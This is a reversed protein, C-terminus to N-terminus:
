RYKQPFYMQVVRQLGLAIVFVTAPQVLILSLVQTRVEFYFLYMGFVLFNMVLCVLATLPLRKPKWWAFLALLAIPLIVFVTFFFLEIGSM